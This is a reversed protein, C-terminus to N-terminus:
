NDTNGGFGDKLAKVSLEGPALGGKRCLDCITAAYWTILKPVRNTKNISVQFKYISQM